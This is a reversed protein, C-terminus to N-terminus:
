HRECARRLQKSPFSLSLVDAFDRRLRTEATGYEFSKFMQGRSFTFVFDLFSRVVGEYWM